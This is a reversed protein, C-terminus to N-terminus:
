WGGRYDEPVPEWAPARTPWSWVDYGTAEAHVLLRDGELRVGDGALPRADAAGPLDVLELPIADHAARAVHVLVTEDPHERLFVMADDHAHLWRIGGATLAPSARRLRILERYTDLLDEDWRGGPVGRDAWPMPRRGDEGFDGPMGVEDGYTIMPIGPSTLLLAAAVRVQGPDDGVLTRVRTTDHSGVLTMSHVLSRWPVIASFERITEVVLDAGLRPVRLPSGLFKPAFGPARLWTWAPRTFGSYNMVGHWGDGTVDASHDHTHEAVVLGTGGTARDVAARTERAVQHALDVDRYRGTMNAVDVRWADLGHGPGLWREVVSDPGDTLASRVAPNAHDLKPLSEVGLWRVWDGPHDPDRVYWDGAPGQPDAQAALFWEHEDGTHNTTIDGMVLLGREHAAEQLRVLAEDGGLLPDVRDFTTADYRHNSRAPFVPTLYLVTVGLEVLHDLHERVGDLTGGYVQAPGRDKGTDLPDDWAAATAWGPLDTRPGGPDGDPEAAADRAFRDPFVQYVVAGTAWAPPAPHAVLRFDAADPVDRAHLGAGNLWRYAAPRRIPDEEGSVEHDGAADLLFRYNTVPNHCTIEAQWWTETDDEHVVRADSFFQEGDPTTRVHVGTVRAARPVRVRVSVVSGLTPAQQSVHLPSGDHHPEGAAIM